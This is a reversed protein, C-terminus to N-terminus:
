VMTGRFGHWCGIFSIHSGYKFVLLRYENKRLKYNFLAVVCIARPTRNQQRTERYAESCTPFFFVYTVIRTSVIIM